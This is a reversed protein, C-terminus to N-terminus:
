SGSSLKPELVIVKTETPIFSRTIKLNAEPEVHSLGMEKLFKDLPELELKCQPIEFHM